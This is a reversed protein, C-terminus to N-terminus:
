SKTRYAFYGAGMLLLAVILKILEGHPMAEWRVTALLTAGAGGGLATTSLDAIHKPDM